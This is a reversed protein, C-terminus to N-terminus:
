IGCAVRWFAEDVAGPVIPEWRRTNSGSAIARGEGMHGSFDIFSLLRVRPERCDYERLVRTSQHAQGDASMDAKNFDYVGWMIVSSGRREISDSDAYASFINEIGGVLTWDALAGSCLTALVAALCTRQM